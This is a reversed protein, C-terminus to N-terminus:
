NSVVNTLYIKIINNTIKYYYSVIKEPRADFSKKTIIIKNIIDQSPDINKNFKITIPNCKANNISLNQPITQVIYLDSDLVLEKLKDSVPVTTTLSSTIFSTKVISSLGCAQVVDIEIVDGSDFTGTFSIKINGLNIVENNTTFSYDDLYTAGFSASFSRAGTFTLLYTGNTTGTYSSTINVTGTSTGDRTYEPEQVTVTSVFREANNGPFISVFYEKNPLLPITPTLTVTNNTVTYTVPFTVYDTSFDLVDRYKTDLLALDPGSWLGQNETYLTIGNLISFPDVNSDFTIVINNDIPINISNNSPTVTLVNLSM